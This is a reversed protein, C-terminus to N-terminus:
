VNTWSLSTTRNLISRCMFTMSNIWLSLKFLLSPFANSTVLCFFRWITQQKFFISINKTSSIKKASFFDEFRATIKANMFLITWWLNKSIFLKEHVKQAFFWASETCVIMCKRHLCCGTENKHLYFIRLKWTSLFKLMFPMTEKASGFVITM